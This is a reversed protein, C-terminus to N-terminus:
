PTPEALLRQVLGDLRRMSAADVGVMVERVVGTRDLVVLTPIGRVGYARVTGGTDRAITYDVPRAALHARIRPESEPSMGVVSLGQDRHRRYMADLVPMIARCPRCWTAWFDLVVVRGALGQLTVAETGALRTAALPPPAQGVTLGGRAARPPNNPAASVGSAVLVACVAGAVLLLPSLRRTDLGM